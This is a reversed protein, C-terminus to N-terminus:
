QHKSWELSIWSSMSVTDVLKSHFFMGEGFWFARLLSLGTWVWTLQRHLTLTRWGCIGRCHTNILWKPFVKDSLLPTICGRYWDGLVLKLVTAALDTLDSCVRGRACWCRYMSLGFWTLIFQGIWWDLWALAQGVCFVREGPLGTIPSSITCSSVWLM